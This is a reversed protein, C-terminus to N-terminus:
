VPNSIENSYRRPTEQGGFMVPYLRYKVDRPKSFDPPGYRDYNESRGRTQGLNEQEAEGEKALTPNIHTFLSMAPHHHTARETRPGECKWPM